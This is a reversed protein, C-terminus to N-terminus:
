LEGVVSALRNSMYDVSEDLFSLQNVNISELLNLDSRPTLAEKIYDRDFKVSGYYKGKVTIFHGARKLSIGMKKIDKISLFSVRRATVIKMAGKVGIGPVRLLTNYDATNIEVPFENFNNLAWQTKPDYNLDFNEGDRLLEEASFGYFRLLWDAQYLRNERIRPPSTTSPLISSRNVPIYGSYYVRKLNLSNYLGQSLRIIKSDSENTAGVILQTSQGGPLFKEKTKNIKRDKISLAIDKMPKIIAHKTKDPALLKLSEESPLEINVSMRDVLRGAMDILSREAGPIAKLHIYGHFNYENRLIYVTNYLMEMTHSPSKIIGSSLFLGEIYNRRYFNITLDAIERPTFTARQTSSSRRNICYECDYICANSMLIKLLSICRGDPTFSHCIGASSASGLGDKNKRNVGSSSCSVDYKASSSLIELKKMIDM